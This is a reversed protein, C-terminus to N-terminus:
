KEDEKWIIAPCHNQKFTKFYEVFIQFPAALAEGIRVIGHAVDDRSIPSSFSLHPALYNLCRCMKYLIIGIITCVILLGIVIGAVPAAKTFFALLAPLSWHNYILKVLLYVGWGVLGIVSIALTTGLIIAAPMVVIKTYNAIKAYFLKRTAAKNKREQQHKLQQQHREQAQKEREARRAEMYAWAAKVKQQWGEGILKQWRIFKNVHKKGDSDMIFTRNYECSWGARKSLHYIDEDDFGRFRAEAFPKCLLSDLFDFSKDLALFIHEFVTEIFLLHVLVWKLGKWLLVFPGVLTTCIVCFITLWFYPCFNETFPPKGFMFSQLRYHWASRSLRVESFFM